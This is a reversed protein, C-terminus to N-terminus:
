LYQEDRVVTDNYTTNFNLWKNSQTFSEPFTKSTQCVEFVATKNRDFEFLFGLRNLSQYM